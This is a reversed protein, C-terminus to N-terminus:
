YLWTADKQDSFVFRKLTEYLKLELNKLRREQSENVDLIMGDVEHDKMNLALNFGMKELGVTKIETAQSREKTM